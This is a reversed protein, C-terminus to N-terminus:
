KLITFHFYNHCYNPGMFKLFDFFSERFDSDGTQGHRIHAACPFLLALDFSIAARLVADIKQRLAPNFHRGGVVLALFRDLGDALGGVGALDAVPFYKDNISSSAM